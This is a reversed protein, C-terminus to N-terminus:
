PCVPRVFLGLCRQYYDLKRFLHYLYAFNDNDSYYSSSWYGVFPLEGAPMFITNGNPGTFLYGWSGNLTTREKSCNNILEEFHASTPMQWLGGWKVHAVDYQTGAIDDGIHHCTKDTGDCHIYNSWGYYDKPETEGWAYYNGIDEPASAGVNWSAWKTGSPLGLDIVEAVPPEQNKRSESPCVPRVSFGFSLASQGLTQFCWFNDSITFETWSFRDDGRGYKINLLSSMRYAGHINLNSINDERRVGSAPLFISNSNPGIVLMGNIGNQSVWECSCYLMLEEFQVGTPMRWLGGWKVHVVDYETGGIYDGIDHLTEETGDCHIYTSWDYYDKEETEGWAYYGGYEQPKTAGINCTAWLTGSPLGLDVYEHGNIMSGRANQQVNITKSLSGSTLNSLSITVSGTRTNTTTNAIADITISKGITTITIWSDSTTAEFSGDTTVTVAESGGDADYYISETSVNLYKGDQTVNVKASGAGNQITITGSRLETTHNEEISVTLNANGSGSAPSITAWTADSSATWSVDSTISISSSSAASTMQIASPTVTPAVENITSGGSPIYPVWEELSSDSCATFATLLAATLFNIYRKM